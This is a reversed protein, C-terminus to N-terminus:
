GRAQRIVDLMSKPQPAPNGPAAGGTVPRTAPRQTAPAVVRAQKNVSEYARNLQDRVGEVTGPVGENRQLFAVERELLPYKSQFAPDRADREQLWQNASGRLTESHQAAQQAQAQENARRQAEQQQAVTARSRSVEMAAEVPLEGAQVRSKLDDPLVEGAAILLDRVFPKIQELAKAPDSKALAMIQLGEAAEDGSLSNQTLFGEINRYRTADAENTKAKQLLQQFRPHKNFPVDTYDTDDKPEDKTEDSAATAAEDETEEASPAPAEAKGVVDRVVSLLDEPKEDNAPSPDAAGTEEVVDAKVETTETAETVDEVQESTTLDAINEDTDKPM